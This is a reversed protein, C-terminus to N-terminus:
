ERVFIPWGLQVELGFGGAVIVGIGLAIAVLVVAFCAYAVVRMGPHPQHDSAKQGDVAGYSLARIGLAFIAPLGAGLILGALLVHWAGEILHLLINM